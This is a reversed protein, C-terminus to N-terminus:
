QTDINKKSDEFIETIEYYCKFCNNAVGLEQLEDINTCNNIEIIEKLHDKTIANCICVYM